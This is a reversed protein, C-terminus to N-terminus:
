VVSDMSDLGHSREHPPESCATFDQHAVEIAAERCEGGRQDFGIGAALRSHMECAPLAYQTQDKPAVLRKPNSVEITSHRLASACPFRLRLVLGERTISVQGTSANVSSESSVFM